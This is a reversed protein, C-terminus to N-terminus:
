PSTLSTSPQSVVSPFYFVLLCFTIFFIVNSFVVTNALWWGWPVPLGQEINKNGTYGIWKAYEGVTKMMGTNKKGVEKMKEQIKERCRYKTFGLTNFFVFSFILM